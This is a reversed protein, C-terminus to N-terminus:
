ATSPCPLIEPLLTQYIAEAFGQPTISRLYPREASPPLLHMKSGQSPYVNKEKPRRINSWCCTKKTYAENKSDSIYGAYNHPHFYWDPKRWETSLRGVPNEILFWKALASWTKAINVLELAETLAQPGKSKWWRAGSGALHQCPPFCFLIDLKQPQLVRLDTQIHLGNHRAPEIDFSVTSCGAASWPALMRGSRSFLAGVKLQNFSKM